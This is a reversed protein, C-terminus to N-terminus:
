RRALKDLEARFLSVLERSIRGGRWGICVSGRVGVIDFGLSVCLPLHHLRIGGAVAAMLGQARAERVFTELYTTPLLDFTSTSGKKLTDVMVGGAGARTAIDVIKLPDLVGLDAFDAYGVLVLKIRDFSNLIEVLGKAIRFAAGPDGTAIGVKVYDIGLIGGVFAAYKLVKNESTVDGLAMSVEKNSKSRVAEVVDKVIHVEPIGLSGDNPDKVDIIDSGGAIADEVEKVDKVSVLLKLIM